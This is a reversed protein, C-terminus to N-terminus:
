NVKISVHAAQLPFEISLNPFNERVFNGSLLYFSDLHLKNIEDRYCIFHDNTNSYRLLYIKMM